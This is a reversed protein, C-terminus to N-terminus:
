RQVSPRTAAAHRRRACELCEIDEDTGNARFEEIIADKGRQMQRRIEDEHKIGIPEIEIDALRIRARGVHKKRADHGILVLRGAEIVYHLRCQSRRM